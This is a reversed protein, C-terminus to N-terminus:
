RSLRKAGSQQMGVGDAAYDFHPTPYSALVQLMTQWNDNSIHSKLWAVAPKVAIHYPQSGTASASLIMPHQVSWPSRGYLPPFSQVDPLGILEAEIGLIDMIAFGIEALTPCDADAVNAIVPLEGAVARLVAEAIASVSTTQFRSQGGYALPIQKRGDLLRKVFWWERAHKSNSGHIACPRLITVPVTSDEILQQEMAVKRASYNQSGAAITANSETLPVTFKPFGNQVAEDLTRGQDDCYVSASSIAIIRGAAQGAQALAAADTEDFAVCSLLLDCDSGILHKLRNVDRADCIVHECGALGQARSRSVLTVAWGLTLLYQAIGLGIQGSGGVIVANPM